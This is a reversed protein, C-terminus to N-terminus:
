PLSSSFISIWTFFKLIFLISANSSRSSTPTIKSDTHIDNKIYGLVPIGLPETLLTLANVTEKSGVVIFAITNNTKLVSCIGKLSDYLNNMSPISVGQLIGGDALDQQEKLATYFINSFHQFDPEEFVAGISVNHQMISAGPFTVLLSVLGHLILYIKM